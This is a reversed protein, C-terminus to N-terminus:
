YIGADEKNKIKLIAKEKKWTMSYSNLIVCFKM